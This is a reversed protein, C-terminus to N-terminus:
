WESKNEEDVDNNSRARQRKQKDLKALELPSLQTEVKFGSLVDLLNLARLIQILTILSIPEGSEVQGMTWRSIGAIEATEEQTKNQNLRQHKIYEGMLSIISKDSMSLWKINTNEM